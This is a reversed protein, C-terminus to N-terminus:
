LRGPEPHAGPQGADDPRDARGPRWARRADAPVGRQSLHLGPLLCLLHEHMLVRGLQGAEVPGLVTQVTAMANGGRSFGGAWRPWGPWGCCGGSAPWGPRNRKPRSRVPPAWGACGPAPWPTLRITSFVFGIRGGPPAAQDRV